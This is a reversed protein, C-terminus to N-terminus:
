GNGGRLVWAAFALVIATGVAATLLGSVRRRKLYLLLWLGSLGVVAGLVAAVDILWSWASGTDRGKHLDNAIGVWGLQAITLEYEGSERDVFADASYAPGKFVILCDVESIQFDSLAYRIGHERRLHEVLALRDVSAAGADGDDGAEGLWARDVTGRRQEVVEATEEFWTPHNLTLGTASFFLLAFFSFMSLYIHLWRALAPLRRRRREGGTADSM